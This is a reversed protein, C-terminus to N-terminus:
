RLPAAMDDDDDDDITRKIDENDLLLVMQCPVVARWLFMMEVVTLLSSVVADRLLLYCLSATASITIHIWVLMHNQINVLAMRALARWLVMM